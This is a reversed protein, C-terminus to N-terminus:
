ILRVITNWNRTTINKGAEGSGTRPSGFEKEIFGIMDITNYKLSIQIETCLDSDNLRLFKLHNEFAAHPIKIMSTPPESFFTVYLRTDKTVVIGRFPDSAVLNGLQEASRILVPIDRAYMSKLGEKIVYTLKEASTIDSTFVVNGSNLVTRVESCGLKIFLTRLDEMKVINKGGVNIGRLFAVYKM